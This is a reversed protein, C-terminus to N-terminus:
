YYFRQLTLVSSLFPRCSSDSIALAYISALGSSSLWSDRMQGPNYHARADRSRARDRDAQPYDIRRDIPIQMHSLSFTTSGYLFAFSYCRDGDDGVPRKFIDSHMWLCANQRLHLLVHRRPPTMPQRRTTIVLQARDSTSSIRLSALCRSNMSEMEHDMVSKRRIRRKTVNFIVETGSAFDSMCDHESRSIYSLSSSRHRDLFYIDSFTLRKKKEICLQIRIIKQFGNYFYHDSYGIRM